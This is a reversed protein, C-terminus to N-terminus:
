FHNYNRWLPLLGSVPLLFEEGHLLHDTLGEGDERAFPPVDGFEAGEEVFRRALDAGLGKSGGSIMAVKGRLKMDDTM